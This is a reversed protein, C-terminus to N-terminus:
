ENNRENGQFAQIRRILVCIAASYATQENEFYSAKQSLLFNESDLLKGEDIKSTVTHLSAFQELAGDKLARAISGLGGYEPVRAAHINYIPIGMGLVEKNIILGARFLVVETPKLTSLSRILDSNRQIGHYNGSPKQGRRKYESLFMKIVLDISIVGKGVLRIVRRYNSSRDIQLHLRDQHDIKSLALGGLKDNGLIVLLSL